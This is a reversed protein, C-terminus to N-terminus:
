PPRTTVVFLFVEHAIGTPIGNQGRDNGDDERDPALLDDQRQECADPHAKRYEVTEVRQQTNSGSKIADDIYEAIGTVRTHDNESQQDPRQYRCNLVRPADPSEYAEQLRSAPYM